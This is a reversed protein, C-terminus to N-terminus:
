ASTEATGSKSGASSTTTQNLLQGFGGKVEKATSPDVNTQSLDEIDLGAESDRDESANVTQRPDTSM